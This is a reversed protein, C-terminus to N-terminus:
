SLNDVENEIDCQAILRAKTVDNLEDASIDANALQYVMYGEFQYSREEETFTLGLSEIEEPIAADFESYGELYNNSIASENSLMLIIENELERVTVDPADPGSVLEFCDDFLGLGLKLM